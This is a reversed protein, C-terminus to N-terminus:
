SGRGEIRRAVYASRRKRAMRHQRGKKALMEVIEDLTVPRGEILSVIVRVHRVIPAPAEDNPDTWGDLCPSATRLYRKRNQYRKKDPHERYFAVSRRTNSQRHHAERCGFGCYLDSRGANRPDTFFLIRCHRCRKLCPRMDPRERLLSRIQAYYSRVLDRVV